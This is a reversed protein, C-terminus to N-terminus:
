WADEEFPQQWVVEEAVQNQLIGRALHRIGERAARITPASRRQGQAEGGCREDDCRVHLCSQRPQCYIPTVRDRDDSSCMDWGTYLSIASPACVRLGADLAHTTITPTTFM